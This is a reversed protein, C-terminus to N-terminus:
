HTGERYRLSRFRGLDVEPARRKEDHRRRAMPTAGCHTGGKRSAADVTLYKHSRGVRDCFGPMRM